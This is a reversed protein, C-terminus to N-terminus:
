LLGVRAASRGPQRKLPVFTREFEADVKRQRRRQSEDVKQALDRASARVLLQQRERDDDREEITLATAQVQRFQNRDLAGGSPGFIEFRDSLEFRNGLIPRLPLWSVCPNVIYVRGSLCRKISISRGRGWSGTFRMM